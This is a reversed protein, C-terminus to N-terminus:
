QRTNATRGQQWERKDSGLTQLEAKSGTASIVAARKQKSIRPQLMEQWGLSFTGGSFFEALCAREGSQWVNQEKGHM